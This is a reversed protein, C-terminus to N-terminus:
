NKLKYMRELVYAVAFQGVTFGYVPFFSDVTTGPERVKSLIERVTKVPLTKVFDKLLAFGEPSM